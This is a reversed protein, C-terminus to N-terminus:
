SDLADYARYFNSLWDNIDVPEAVAGNGVKFPAELLANLAYVTDSASLTVTAGYQRAFSDFEYDELGYEEAYAALKEPFMEKFAPDVLGYKERCISM